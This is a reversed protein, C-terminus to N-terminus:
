TMGLKGMGETFKLHMLYVLKHYYCTTFHPLCLLQSPNGPNVFCGLEQKFWFFSCICMHKTSHAPAGVPHMHNDCVHKQTWYGKSISWVFRTLYVKGISSNWTRDAGACHTQKPM